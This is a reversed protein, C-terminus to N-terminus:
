YDEFPLALQATNRQIFSPLTSKHRTTPVSVTAAEKASAIVFLRLDDEWLNLSRDSVHRQRNRPKLGLWRVTFCWAGNPLTGVGDVRAYTGQRVYLWDKVLRLFLGEHIDERTM